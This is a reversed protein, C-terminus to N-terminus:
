GELVSRYWCRCNWHEKPPASDIPYIQGDKEDCEGCVRNDHQTVWEVKKVGADKYAKLLAADTVEVAYESIMRSWHHLATKYARGSDMGSLLADALYGRKRDVEDTYRYGTIPSYEFLYDEIWDEGPADEGHAEADRYVLAALELFAKRADSDLARYLTQCSTVISLEDADLLNLGAGASKAKIQATRFRRIAKRNLLVIAADAPSYPNTKSDAV